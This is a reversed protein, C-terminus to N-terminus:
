PQLKMLFSEPFNEHIKYFMITQAKLRRQELTDWGLNDLMPSVHSYWSYDNYVFRAGRRQVVEIKVINQKTYLAARPFCVLDRDCPNWAHLPLM